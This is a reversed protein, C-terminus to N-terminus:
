RHSVQSQEGSDSQAALSASEAVVLLDRAQQAAVTLALALQEYSVEDPDLDIRTDIVVGDADVTVRVRAGLAFGVATREDEAM